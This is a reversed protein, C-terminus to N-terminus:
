QFDCEEFEARFSYERNGGATGFQVVQGVNIAQKITWFNVPGGNTMSVVGRQELWTFGVHDGGEVAFPTTLTVQFYSIPM